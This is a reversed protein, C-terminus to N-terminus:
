YLIQCFFVNPLCKTPHRRLYNILFLIVCFFFFFIGRKREKKKQKLLKLLYRNHKPKIKEKHAM